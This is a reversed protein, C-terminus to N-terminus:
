IETSRYYRLYNRMVEKKIERKLALVESFHKAPMQAYSLQSQFKTIHCPVPCYCSNTENRFEEKFFLSLSILCAYVNNFQLPVNFSRKCVAIFQPRDQIKTCTIYSHLYCFANMLFHRQMYKRPHVMLDCEGPYLIAGILRLTYLCMCSLINARLAHQRIYYRIYRTCM